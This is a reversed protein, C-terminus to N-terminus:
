SAWSACIAWRPNERALRVILARVERGIPPRGPRRAYTWRTAVLRKHWRLLTAPTVLFLSWLARPLTRSAAALFLRDASRFAPRGVQRRLVGLEHRLVVIELEKFHASRFRLCILELVRRIVVYCASLM